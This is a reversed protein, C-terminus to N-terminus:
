AEQCTMGRKRTDSVPNPLVWRESVEPGCTITSPQSMAQCGQMAPLGGYDKKKKAIGRINGSRDTQDPRATEVRNGVILASLGSRHRRPFIGLTCLGSLSQETTNAGLKIPLRIVREALSREGRGLEPGQLM